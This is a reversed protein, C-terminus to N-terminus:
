DLKHIENLVGSITARIRYSAAQHLWRSTDTKDILGLTPINNSTESRNKIVPSRTGYPDMEDEHSDCLMTFLAKRKARTEGAKDVRDFSIALAQVDLM